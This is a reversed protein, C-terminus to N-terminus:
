PFHSSSTLSTSYSSHLLFVSERNQPLTICSATTEISEQTETKQEIRGMGEVGNDSHVFHLLVPFYSLPQKATFM